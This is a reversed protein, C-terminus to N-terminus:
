SPFCIKKFNCYACKIKDDVMPFDEKVARNSAEDRLMSKMESISELIIKKVNSIVNESVQESISKLSFLNYEITQIKLTDVQWRDVAFLAYCALQLDSDKSESKGTKWDVIVVSGDKDKYPFDLKVNIKNGELGFSQFEEIPLWMNDNFKEIEQLIGSKYFNGLCTEVLEWMEKWQSDKIEVGYEHEFLACSKPTDWYEKKRSLRFDSRMKDRVAPLIEEYKHPLKMRIKGLVGSVADHVATGAWMYRSKLKNLVYIVRVEQPANIDWGGWQGYYSYYYRRRCEKFCLNRSNSWSFENKLLAM